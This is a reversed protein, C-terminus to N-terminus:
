IKRIPRWSRNDNEILADAQPFSETGAAYFEPEVPKRWADLVPSLLHWAIEVDDYRTFLTQDGSMADLLLRQYADPMSIGFVQKYTFDMALTSICTKAGPSKAQFSLAIGEEPQIEFVLVNPELRGIGSAEFLSHPVSKFTVAIESLQRALRKGTRLYFPIGKWRWNDILVRAAVFTDTRSDPPIGPEQRYAAVRDSEILGCTYQGRVIEQDNPMIQRIARFLKTKEDRIRDAEFSAPPEMAILSLLQLMHNQFIDRIAGAQDYYGARHEIGISEAITIQIHDIYNRNWLPEFIANAFRFMLINKVTEKALYHDIRYIQKENFFRHILQNLERATKYDNGFPKEIVVQAPQDTHAMSLGAKDLLEIILPFINPPVALYFIHPGHQNFQNDLESLRQRINNYFELQGYDGHVYFVRKSFNEIRAYDENKVLSKLADTMKRRYQEDSFATRACGLLYFEDPLLDRKFLAFLGPLIKRNTLDGSAGFIVMACQPAKFEKCLEATNALKPIIKPM